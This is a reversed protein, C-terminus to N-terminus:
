KIEVVEIGKKLRSQGAVVVKDGSEIGSLIEYGSELRQGLEVKNYSVVGGPEVVYVYRDGSGSQKVISMDPVVVSEKVGYSLTARAFMGPRIRENSNSIEVEVPFTRSESNITPYILSIKGKFEEGSYADATIDVEMGKKVVAFYLESVNITLKVPKIQEVVLLPLAASYMDGADYNRATIIGSIPAILTTNEKINEYTSTAVDSDLKRSEWVSKSEGGIKYLEDTRKFEALANEMRIRAQELNVDDMKALKQGKTVRDGVEVYIEQLRVASQPAIQNVVKAEITGSFTAKQEVEQTFVQETKVSVKEETKEAAVTTAVGGNQNESNSGCAFTMTAIAVMIASKYVRKM